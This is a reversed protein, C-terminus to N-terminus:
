QRWERITVFIVILSFVCIGIPLGYKVISLCSQCSWLAALWALVSLITFTTLFTTLGLLLPRYSRREPGSGAARILGYIAFFGSGLISVITLFSTLAIEALKEDALPPM